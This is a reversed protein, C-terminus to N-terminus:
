LRPMISWAPYDGSRHEAAPKTTGRLLFEPSFYETTNSYMFGYFLAFLLEELPVGAIVAGSLASLNWVHFLYHPYVASFMVFCMFYLGTFLFGALMIRPIRAPWCACSAAAGAFLAIITIYIPNVNTTTILTVFVPIPSVLALVQLSRACRPQPGIKRGIKRLGTYIAAVM